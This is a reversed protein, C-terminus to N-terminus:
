DGDRRDVLGGAYRAVYVRRADQDITEKGSFDELEGRWFNRYTFAGDSFEDPGRFPRHEPALLLAQRLFSYIPQVEYAPDTVRGYYMALWVPRGHLFVVARGGYPEGGFYNDHLRWEDSEYVITTSRDAEKLKTAERGAAYGRRTAEVLFRRLEARDM